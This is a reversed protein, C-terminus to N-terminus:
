RRAAASPPRPARPARPRWWRHFPNKLARDLERVLPYLAIGIMIGIVIVHPSEWLRTLVGAFELVVLYAAIWLVCIILHALLCM